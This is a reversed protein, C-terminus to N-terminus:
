FCYIDGGLIRCNLTNHADVRLVGCGQAFAPRPLSALHLTM